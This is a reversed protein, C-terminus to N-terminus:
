GKSWTGVKSPTKGGFVKVMDASHAAKQAEAIGAEAGMLGVDYGYKDALLDREHQFKKDLLREDAEIREDSAMKNLIGTAGAALMTWFGANDMLKSLISKLSSPDAPGEKDDTTGPAKM